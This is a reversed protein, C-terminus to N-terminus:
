ENIKYVTTLDHISETVTPGFPTRKKGGWGVYTIMNEGTYMYVPYGLSNDQLGTISAVIQNGSLVLLEGRYVFYVKGKGDPYLIFSNDDPTGVSRSSEHYLDIHDSKYNINNIEFSFMKSDDTALKEVKGDNLYYLTIDYYSPADGLGFHNQKATLAYKKDGSKVLEIQSLNGMNKFIELYPRLDESVQTYKRPTSPTFLSIKVDLLESSDVVDVTIQKINSNSFFREKNTKTIATYAIVCLFLVAIIAIATIIIKKM